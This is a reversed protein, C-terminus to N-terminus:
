WQLDDASAFIFIRPQARLKTVFASGRALKRRWEQASVFETRIRRKLLDEATLLAGCCSACSADEGIVMLDIDGESTEQAKAASGYVFAVKIGPARALAERLALVLQPQVRLSVASSFGPRGDDDQPDPGSSGENGCAALGAAARLEGPSPDLGPRLRDIVRAAIVRRLRAAPRGLVTTSM